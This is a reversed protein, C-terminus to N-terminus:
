VFHVEVGAAAYRQRVSEPLSKETILHDLRGFSSVAFSARTDIKEATALVAVSAASAAMARKLCADEYDNAMVGAAIEIACAGLFCLDSRIRAIQELAGAGSAGRSTVDVKGGILVLDRLGRDLAAVAIDPSVTAVSLDFDAPLQQALALNSTSQDLMLTMGKRLLSLACQALRKKADDSETLRTEFRHAIPTKRLAGGHVREVLGADALDRLDRRITDESVRFQAAAQASAVRGDREICALLLRQREAPILDNDNFLPLSM